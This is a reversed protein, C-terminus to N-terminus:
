DVNIMVAWESGTFFVYNGSTFKLLIGNGSYDLTRTHEDFNVNFALYEATLDERPPAYSARYADEVVNGFILRANKLLNRDQRTVLDKTTIHRKM